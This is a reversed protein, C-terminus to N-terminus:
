QGSGPSPNAATVEVPGYKALVDKIQTADGVCVIQLHALDVYKKAAAQVAASDIAAIHEPYQDWYDAPLGFHEVELAYNLLSVPRELSLAFRAVVSRKAEDLESQPVADNRIRNFESFLEHLSGDTVPTRVETEAVWYGRYVDSELSSYAGYTYGHVERLNLFLRASPGGGVVRDMVALAFYDPDNRRIALNGALINTQVSGPRDVLVIKAPQPQPVEALSTSAAPGKEWGGFYKEVVKLIEATNVDGVIGLVSNAAVYYKKHYDALMQTTVANIAEPTPSTVAYNTSGYLAKHFAEDALFGPEAREEELEGLQRKRYKELEDAPFTPHLVIDSMLDLIKDTSDTLGSATVTTESAGFEAAAKLSAGIEDIASSIQASTRTATGERLMDATFDAIGPTPDAIAGPRLTLEFTVTPLKHQELILVTLGNALKHETPKPLNVRLIEKSVPARNLREVKSLAMGKDSGPAQQNQAAAFSAIFVIAAFAGAVRVARTPLIRM